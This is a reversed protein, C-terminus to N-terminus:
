RGRRRAHKVRHGRHSRFKAMLARRAKRLNANWKSKAKRSIKRHKAM